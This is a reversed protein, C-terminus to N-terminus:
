RFISNLINALQKVTAQIINSMQSRGQGASEIVRQMSDGLDGLVERRSRIGDLFTQIRANRAARKSAASSSAAKQKDTANVAAVYLIHTPPEGSLEPPPLDIQWGIGPPNTTFRSNQAFARMFIQHMSSLQAVETTGAIWDFQIPDTPKTIVPRNDVTELEERITQASFAPAGNGGNYVTLRIFDQLRYNVRGDFTDFPVLRYDNALVFAVEQNGNKQYADLMYKYVEALSIDAYGLNYSAPDVPNVVVFSKNEPRSGYPTRGIYVPARLALDAYVGQKKTYYSLGKDLTLQSDTMKKMMAILIDFITVVIRNKEVDKFDGPLLAGYIGQVYDVFSTLNADDVPPNATFGRSKLFDKWYDDKQTPSLFGLYGRLIDSYPGSSPLITM